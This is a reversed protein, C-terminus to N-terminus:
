FGKVEKYQRAAEKIYAQFDYDSSRLTFEYTPRFIAMFNELDEDTFATLKRVLAKNFKHDIFKDKEEQLLRERFHEMSKNKRFQFVRILEDLDIGAGMSGISTMSEINPRHFNFAKAYDLRNQISDARYDRPKVVIEKLVNVPVRLSIDFQSLDNIKHVPFKTTPKGLYSFWVSDKESVNLVYAGAANTVTGTGATSMVSVAELPYTKSSDYVTGRLQYQCQAHSAFCLSVIILIISLKV